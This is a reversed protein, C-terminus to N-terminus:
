WPMWRQQKRQRVCGSPRERVLILMHIRWKQRFASHRSHLYECYQLSDLCSAPPCQCYPSADVPVRLLPFSSPPDECSIPALSTNKPISTSCYPHGFAIELRSRDHQPRQTSLTSIVPSGPSTYKIFMLTSCVIGGFLNRTGRIISACLYRLCYLRVNPGCPAVGCQITPFPTNKL